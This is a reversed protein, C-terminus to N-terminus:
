NLMVIAPSKLSLLWARLERVQYEDLRRWRGLVKIPADGGKRFLHRLVYMTEDRGREIEDPTTLVIPNCGVVYNQIRREFSDSAHDDLSHQRGYGNVIINGSLQGGDLLRLRREPFLKYATTAHIKQAVEFGGVVYQKAEPVKGSITFIHDGPDVLSRINPMCAGLSPTDGLYPDKISRGKEPDYGTRTIYAYGKIM